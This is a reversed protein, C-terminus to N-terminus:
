GQLSLGSGSAGPPLPTPGSTGTPAHEGKLTAVAERWGSRLVSLLGVAENIKDADKELNARILLQYIYYYLSTLNDSLAPDVDRKLCCMLEIVIRQGRILAEHAELVEENKMSEEAGSLFRIAGDYLMLLLQEPSATAIQAQLYKKANGGSNM